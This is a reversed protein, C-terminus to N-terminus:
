GRHSGVFMIRGGVSLEVTGDSGSNWIGVVEGDRRRRCDWRGQQKRRGGGSTDVKGEGDDMWQQIVFALSSVGSYPSPLAM